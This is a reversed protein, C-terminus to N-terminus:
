ARKKVVETEEKNINKNLIKKAIKKANDSDELIEPKRITARVFEMVSKSLKDDKTM